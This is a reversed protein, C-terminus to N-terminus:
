RSLFNQNEYIRNIFTIPHINTSNTNIVLSVDFSIHEGDFLICRFTPRALSKDAGSYILFAANYKLYHSLSFFSKLMPCETHDITFKSHRRALRISQLDERKLNKVKFYQIDTALVHL